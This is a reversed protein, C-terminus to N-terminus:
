VRLHDHWEGPGMYAGCTQCFWALISASEADTLEKLAAFAARAKETPENEMGSEVEAGEASLGAM